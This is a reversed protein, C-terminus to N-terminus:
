EEAIEPRDENAAPKEADGRRSRHGGARGDGCGREVAIVACAEQRSLRAQHRQGADRRHRNSSEERGDVPARREDKIEGRQREDRTRPAM